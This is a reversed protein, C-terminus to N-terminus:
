RPYLSPKKVHILSWTSDIAPGRDETQVQQIEDLQELTQPTQYRDKWKGRYLAGDHQVYYSIYSFRMHRDIRKFAENRQIVQM